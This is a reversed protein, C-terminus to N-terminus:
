NFKAHESPRKRLNRVAKGIYTASCGPCSFEYVVDSRELDPIKDKKPPFYSIKKTQYVFVFKVRQTLDRQM